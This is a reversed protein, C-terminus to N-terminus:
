HLQLILSYWTANDKSSCMCVYRASLTLLLKRQPVQLQLHNLQIANILSIVGM